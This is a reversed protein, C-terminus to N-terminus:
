ARFQMNQFSQSVFSHMFPMACQRCDGDLVCVFWPVVPQYMATSTPQAAACQAYAIMACESHVSCSEAVIAHQGATTVVQAFNQLMFNEHDKNPLWTHQQICTPKCDQM